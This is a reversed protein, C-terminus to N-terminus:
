VRSDSSLEFAFIDFPQAALPSTQPSDHRTRLRGRWPATMQFFIIEPTKREDPEM